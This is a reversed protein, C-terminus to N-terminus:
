RLCAFHERPFELKSLLLLGLDCLSLFIHFICVTITSTASKVVPLSQSDQGSDIDDHGRKFKKTDRSNNKEVFKLAIKYLQHFMQISAPTNFPSLPVMSPTLFSTVLEMLKLDTAIHSDQPNQLLNAFLLLFSSLPHYLAMRFMPSRKNGFYFFLSHPKSGFYSIKLSCSEFLSTLVLWVINNRPSYNIVKRLLEITSRAASLCISHSAYVRPNLHQDHLVSRDQM